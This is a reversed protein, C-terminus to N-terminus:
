YINHYTLNLRNLKSTITTTKETNNVINHLIYLSVPIKGSGSFMEKSKDNDWLELWIIHKDLLLTHLPNSLKLWTLPNIFCLYGGKILLSFSKKIFDGWITTSSSEKSQTSSKIGGKNYPPNGMIVDFYDPFDKPKNYKTFDQESINGNFISRSIAVNTPDLEVMYLMNEIIHRSRDQPKPIKTKLGEMLRYYVCIPFNGIGNAPDLWKLNPNEWIENPLHDLMGNILSLPTFVEGREKKAEINPILRSEVYEMMDEYSAETITKTKKM